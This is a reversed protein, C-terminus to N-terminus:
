HPQRNSEALSRRIRVVTPDGPESSVSFGVSRALSLMARNTALVIGEVEDVGAEKAHELLAELLRRGLGQGQRADAIVLAFEATPKTPALVYRGVGVFQEVGEKMATVAFAMHCHYDIHTMQEIWEPTIKIASLMRQYGSARSLGRVFAEEREGDDPRIPRLLLEEGSALTWSRALHEPYTDAGRRRSEPLGSCTSRRPTM